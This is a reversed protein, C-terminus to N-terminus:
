ERNTLITAIWKLLGPHVELKALERMLINYDIPDFEKTLATFFLRAFAEGGDVGEYVDQLMYLLAGTTSHGKSM